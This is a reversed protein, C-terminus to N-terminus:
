WRNLTSSSMSPCINKPSCAGAQTTYASARIRAIKTPTKFLSFSVQCAVMNVEDSNTVAVLM